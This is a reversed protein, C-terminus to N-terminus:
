RALLVMLTTLVFVDSIFASLVMSILHLAAVEHGANALKAVVLRM